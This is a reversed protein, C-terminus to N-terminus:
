ERKGIEEQLMVYSAYRSAAIRGDSLAARVACDPEKLHRCDDFRCAGLCERMEPYYSALEAAEAGFVAFSTFGPTDFIMGDAGVDFLEVHRTTHRGRETKSSIAGTELAVGCAAARGDAVGRLCNILTSKGVGSPGALASKKGALLPPFLDTGVGCVCSLEIVPYLGAYVDTVRRLSESSVLDTKNICLLIEIQAQEASVILKDVIALNPAPQAAAIMVIFLDVNAIPPRVFLNRRPLIANVVGEEEDLAEFEVFDGVTPTLGDKKFIGRARCSYSVSRDAGEPRVRYFGGVGKVILGKM